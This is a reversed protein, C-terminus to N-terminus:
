KIEEVKTIKAEIGFMKLYQVLYQQLIPTFEGQLTTELGIDYTIGETAKAPQTKPDEETIFDFSKDKKLINGATDKVAGSPVTVTYNTNYSLKESPILILLNDKLEYTYKITKGAVSRIIIQDITKGVKIKESFRVVIESERMIDTAKDVPSTKTITPAKTDKSAAYAASNMGILLAIMCVISIVKKMNIVM